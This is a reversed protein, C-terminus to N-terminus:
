AAASQVAALVDDIPPIDAANISDHRYVILGDRNLVFTGRGQLVGTTMKQVRSGSRLARVLKLPSFVAYRSIAFREVDAARELQRVPDSLCDFPVEFDLCSERVAAIDERYLILVRTGAADLEEKVGALERAAQQCFPCWMRHFAVVVPGSGLYDSVRVPGQTAVVPVDVPFDAGVAVSM